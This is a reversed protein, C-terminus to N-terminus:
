KHTQFIQKVPWFDLLIYSSFSDVVSKDAYRSVLSKNRSPLPTTACAWATLLYIIHRRSHSNWRIM